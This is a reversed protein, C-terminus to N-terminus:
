LNRRNEVDESTPKNRRHPLGHKSPGRARETGKNLIEEMERKKTEKWCIVLISCSERLSYLM